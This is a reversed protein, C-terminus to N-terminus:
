CSVRVLVPCSSPGFDRLHVFVRRGSPDRVPLIQLPAVDNMFEKSEENLDSLCIPRFLVDDVDYIQRVFELYNLMRRAGQKACSGGEGRGFFTLQFDRDNILESGNERAYRYAPYKYNRSTSSNNNDALSYTTESFYYRDLEEQFQSLAIEEEEQRTFSNNAGGDPQLSVDGGPKVGHIEELVQERRDLSLQNLENSLLKNVVLPDLGPEHDSGIRTRDEGGLEDLSAKANMEDIEGQKEIAHGNTRNNAKGWLETWPISPTATASLAVCRV